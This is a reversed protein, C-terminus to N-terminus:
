RRNKLKNELSILAFNVRMDYNFIYNDDHILDYNNHNNISIM